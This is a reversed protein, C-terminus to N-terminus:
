SSGSDKPPIYGPNNPGFTIADDHGSNYTEEEKDGTFFSKITGCGVLLVAAIIIVKKM